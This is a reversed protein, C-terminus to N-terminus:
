HATPRELMSRIIVQAGEAFREVSPINYVALKNGNLDRFYAIYMEPTRYGPAGEDKGGNKLAIAHLRDVLEKSPARLGFMTGNGASCAQKDYPITLALMGGNPGTFFAMHPAEFLLKGGLPMLLDTYFHMAASLDNAGITVYELMTELEPSTTTPM